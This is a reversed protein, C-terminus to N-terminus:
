LEALTPLSVGLAALAPLVITPDLRAKRLATVGGGFVIELMRREDDRIPRKLRAMEDLVVRAQQSSLADLNRMQTATLSNIDAGTVIRATRIGSWAPANAALPPATTAVARLVTM